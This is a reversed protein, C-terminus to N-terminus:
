NLQKTAQKMQTTSFENHQPKNWKHQALKTTNCSNETTNHLTNHVVLGCLWGGFLVVILDFIVVFLLYLNCAM